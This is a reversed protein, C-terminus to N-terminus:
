KKKNLNKKKSLKLKYIPFYLGRCRPRFLSWLADRGLLWIGTNASQAHHLYIGLWQVNEKCEHLFNFVWTLMDQLSSLRACYWVNVKRWILRNNIATYQPSKQPAYLRTWKNVASLSVFISPEVESSLLAHIKNNSIKFSLQCFSISCKM